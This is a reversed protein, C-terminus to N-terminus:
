GSRNPPPTEQPVKKYIQHTGSALGLLTRYAGPADDTLMFVFEAERRDFVRAPYPSTRWPRLFIVRDEATLPLPDARGLAEIM